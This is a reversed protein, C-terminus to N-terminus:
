PPPVQNLLINEETSDLATPKRMNEIAPPAGVDVFLGRCGGSKAVLKTKLPNVFIGRFVWSFRGLTLLHKSHLSEAGRFDWSFEM